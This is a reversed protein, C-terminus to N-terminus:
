SKLKKLLHPYLENKVWLFNPELELITEYYKKSTANDNLESYTQAIITLLSLYNWNMNVWSSDKEMLTKAKLYYTLAETKSGGFMGPMYYQINGQQVYGFPNSPGLEIANRACEISKFGLFPAKLPNLGIKYGYFASKYSNVMSTYLGKQELSSLHLEAKELYVEAEKENKQGLCWATYGYQYNILELLFENSKNNSAEMKDITQKWAQMNNSIYAKYIQEKYSAALNSMVFLLLVITIINKKGEM